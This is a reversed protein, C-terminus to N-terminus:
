SEAQRVYKEGDWVIWGSREIGSMQGAVDLQSRLMDLEEDTPVEITEVKDAVVPKHECEALVEDVTVWPAIAILRLRREENYDYIAWPTVVRWPGTGRPLGAKERAGPTGDLYGPSSIFDVREVFKRKEQDTIVITRWCLSAISDAGGPGGFRRIREGYTGIATSNINGYQDIQLANLIGYDMLGVQAHNGAANMTAWGLARYGARASVMSMIPDFPLLPEPAIVGDETIYQANPAYMRKGMLIAYLPSGAGAVWYTKGDEIMRAVTCTQMERENFSTARTM